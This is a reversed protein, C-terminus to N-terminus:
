VEEETPPEPLPMWHTVILGTSEHQWHPQPDFRFYSLTGTYRLGTGRGEKHMFGYYVLVPKEDEPLRDEVSIWEPPVPVKIYQQVLIAKRDERERLAAIAMGIAELFRDAKDYDVCVQGGLAKFWDNTLYKIAEERTM